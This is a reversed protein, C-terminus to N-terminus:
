FDQENTIIHVNNPLRTVIPFVDGWSVHGYGIGPRPLVYVNRPTAEAIECLRDTSQSILNLSSKDRWHLKTPFSFTFSDRDFYVTNGFNAVQNGLRAALGPYRDNAQKAVGAGMVLEGNAKVVGNTTVGRWNADYDWLNGYVLIM